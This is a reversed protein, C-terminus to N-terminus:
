ELQPNSRHRLLIHLRNLFDKRGKPSPIHGRNESVMIPLNLPDERALGVDRKGAAAAPMCDDPSMTVQEHRFHSARLLFETSDVAM